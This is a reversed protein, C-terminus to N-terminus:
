ELCFAGHQHPDIKSTVSHLDLRFTVTGMKSYSIMFSIALGQWYLVHHFLRHKLDNLNASLLYLICDPQSFFIIFSDFTQNHIETLPYSVIVQNTLVKWMKCNLFTPVGTFDSAVWNFFVLFAVFEILQEWYQVLIIWCCDNRLSSNTNNRHQVINYYFNKAFMKDVFLYFCM